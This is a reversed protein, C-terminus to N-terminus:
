LDLPIKESALPCSIEFDTTPDRRIEFEKSSEHMEFYGALIFLIPHFVPLFYLMAKGM